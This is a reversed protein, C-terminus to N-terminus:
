STLMKALTTRDNEVRPHRKNRPTQEPPVSAMM